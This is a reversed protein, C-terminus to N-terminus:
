GPLLCNQEVSQVTSHPRHRIPWSSCIWIEEDVLNQVKPCGHDELNQVEKDLLKGLIMCNELNKSFFDVKLARPLINSLESYDLHGSNWVIGDKTEQASFRKNQPNTSKQHFLHFTRSNAM